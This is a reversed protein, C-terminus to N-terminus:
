PLIENVPVVLDGIVACNAMEDRHVVKREEYHDFAPRRHIEITDDLLNVIWFEATDAQAYIPLKTSQDLDISSDAVEILLLVDAPRPHGARRIAEPRVLVVDPQPRM